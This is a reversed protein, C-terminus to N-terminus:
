SEQGLVDGFSTGGGSTETPAVMAVAASGVAAGALAAAIGLGSWWLPPKITFSSVPAPAAALVAERLTDVPGPVRWADLADDLMSAEALIVMAAPDRALLLAAYRDAEPWRAIVGGYAGALELFRKLTLPETM